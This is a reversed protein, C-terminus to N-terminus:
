EDESDIDEPHASQHNFQQVQDLPAKEDKFNLKYNECMSNWRTWGQLVEEPDLGQAQLQMLPNTLGLKLRREIAIIEKAADFLHERKSIFQFNIYDKYKSAKLKSGTFNILYSKVFLQYQIEKWNEIFFRQITQYTKQEDITAERLSSYNVSSYDHALRNYSVGVAAAVKQVIAKLFGGFNTNPHTPSVSKVTYGKPVISSEGPALTDVFVGPDEEGETQNFFNAATDGTREYFVSHCASVKAAFLEAVAYDDLQKLSDISAIMESYGRTQNIFQKKFIHIIDSAPIAFRKGTQYNDGDGQRFWYQVPRYNQDVEVGLIIANQTSTRMKNLGSDLSLSDLLKFSIGYPNKANRDVYIFVEGDTLYTRLILTDLDIDSQAGDTTIYGNVKRGFDYWANELETNVAKNLSGDIDKVLSQLRFGGKGIISKELNNLHSRFIENNMALGRTRKILQILGGKLDRNVTNFSAFLWDTLRSVQSNKISRSYTKKPTKKKFIDFIKMIQFEM